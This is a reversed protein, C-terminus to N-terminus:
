ATIDLGKGQKKLEAEKEAERISEAMYKDADESDDEIRKQQVLMDGKPQVHKHIPSSSDHSHDRLHHRKGSHHRHKHHKTLDVATVSQLLGDTSTYGLLAM